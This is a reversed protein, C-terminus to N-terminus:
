IIKRPGKWVRVNEPVTIKLWASQDSTAAPYIGILYLSLFIVMIVTCPHFQDGLIITSNGDRSIKLGQSSHEPKVQCTARRWVTM